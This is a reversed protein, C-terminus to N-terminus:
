YSRLGYLSINGTWTSTGSNEGVRFANIACKTKYIHGGSFIQFVNSANLDASQFSQLTYSSSDGAKYIYCYGQATEQTGTGVNTSLYQFGISDSRSELFTNAENGNIFAFSYGSSIFTSGGDKSYKLTLTKNDSQPHITEWILFHVDYENEKINLFDFYTVASTVEKTEILEWQGYQTLKDQQSLALHDNVSLVGANSKFAQQPIDSEKGIYGYKSM